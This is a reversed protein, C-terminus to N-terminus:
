CLRKPLAAWDTEALAKRIAALRAPELKRVTVEGSPLRQVRRGDPFIDLVENGKQKTFTIRILPTGPPPLSLTKASVKSGPSVAPGFIARDLSNLADVQAIECDVQFEMVAGGTWLQWTSSAPPPSHLDAVRALLRQLHQAAPNPWAAVTCTQGRLTVKATSADPPPRQPSPIKPPLGASFAQDVEKRVEKMQEPTFREFSEWEPQKPARTSHSEYRGDEFVRMGYGFAYNGIEYALLIGSDSRLAASTGADPPKEGPSHDPATMKGAGLSLAVVSPVWILSTV